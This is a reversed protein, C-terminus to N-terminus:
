DEFGIKKWVANRVRSLDRGKLTRGIGEHVSLSAIRGRALYEHPPIRDEDGYLDDDFDDDDGLTRRSERLEDKLIMSWDPVDVPLSLATGRVDGGRKETAPVSKKSIRSGTVSKHFDPSSSVNWVDFENFEFRLDTATPGEREGSFCLYNGRGLYSRSTAM